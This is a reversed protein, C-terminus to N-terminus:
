KNLQFESFSKARENQETLTWNDTRITQLWVEGSQYFVQAHLGFQKEIKQELTGVKLHGNISLDGSNHNYRILRIPTNPKWQISNPSGEGEQHVVKYFEIKLYPFKDNFENQIEKITKSDNIIM